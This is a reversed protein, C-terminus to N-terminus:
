YCQVRSYLLSYSYGHLFYRCSIWEVSNKSRGGACMWELSNKSGGGSLLVIVIMILIGVIM